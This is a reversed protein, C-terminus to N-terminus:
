IVSFTLNVSIVNRGPAGDVAVRWVEGNVPECAVSLGKAGNGRWAQGGGRDVEAVKEGCEVRDDARGIGVPVVVQGHCAADGVERERDFGERPLNM